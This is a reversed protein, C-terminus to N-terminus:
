PADTRFSATTPPSTCNSTREDLCCGAVYSSDDASDACTLNYGNVAPSGYSTKYM